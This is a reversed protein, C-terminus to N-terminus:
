NYRPPMVAVGIVTNDDAREEAQQAEGEEAIQHAHKQLAWIAPDEPMRPSDVVISKNSVM